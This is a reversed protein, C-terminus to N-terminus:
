LLIIEPESLSLIILIPWCKVFNCYFYFHDLKKSECHLSCEENLRFVSLTRRRTFIHFTKICSVANKKYDCLTVFDFMVAYKVIVLIVLTWLIRICPLMVPTSIKWLFNITVGLQTLLWYIPISTSQHMHPFGSMLPQESHQKATHPFIRVSDGLIEAEGLFHTGWRICSKKPGYMDAGWVMDISWGDKCPEDNSGVELHMGIPLVGRLLAWKWKGSVLGFLMEVLESIQVPSMFTVLLRVSLCVCVTLWRLETQLLLRM